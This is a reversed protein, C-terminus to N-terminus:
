RRPIQATAWDEAEGGPLYHSNPDKYVLARFGQARWSGIWPDAPLRVYVGIRVLQSEELAGDLLRRRELLPVDLLPEGDIALLDVCVLVITDGPKVPPPPQDSLGRRKEGGRGLLLQTTVQKATPIEVDGIMVGEGSTAGQPTLFGDLVLRQARAAEAVAADIEPVVTVPDGVADLITVEDPEVHVIVRDGDWLPEVIPNRIERPRRKGFAQPRWARMDLARDTTM